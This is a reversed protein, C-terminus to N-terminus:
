GADGADSRGILVASPSFSHLRRGVTATDRLYQLSSLPGGLLRRAAISSVISSNFNFGKLLLLSHFSIICVSSPGDKEVAIEKGGDDIKFLIFKFTQKRKLELFKPLCDPSVAVGSAAGAM